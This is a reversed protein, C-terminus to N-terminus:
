EIIIKQGPYILNANRIGNIAQLKRWTTGYRRAIGSLTDGRKVTYVVPRTTKTANHVPVNFRFAGVARGDYPIFRFERNGGQRQGFVKGKWYMGVHQTAKSDWFLWDGDSFNTTILEAGAHKAWWYRDHSWFGGAWGTSVPHYPIKFDNCFKHFGDVCQVGYAGDVDFKKGKVSNVWDEITM